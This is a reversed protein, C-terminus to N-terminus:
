LNALATLVDEKKQRSVPIIKGNSMKVDGGDARIYKDVHKLNVLYSNHVRHFSNDNLLEEIDKLPKAFVASKGQQNYIKTYNGDSECFVIDKLNIFSIGDSTPLAVREKTPKIPHVFDLLIDRQETQYHAQNMQRAKQVATILEEKDIPKLLYDIASYKFAKLAYQEYATTFIVQFPTKRCREIVDFGTLDPMQVDLFVLDPKLDPIKEVAVSPDNFQGIIQLIPCYREILLALMELCNLEDDILIVRM